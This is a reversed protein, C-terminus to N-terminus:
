HLTYIGDAILKLDIRYDSYLQFVQPFDPSNFKLRIAIRDVSLLRKKRDADVPIKLESRQSGNARFNADYPAALILDNVFLSDTISQSNDILFLQLNFNFPFGNDAILTLTTPGIPEFNTANSITFPLTDALILQNAAFRLPMRFHVHTQILKDRFVFDNGGSINGLPNLSLKIDYSYKDPINEILEKINSNSNDLHISYKTPVLSDPLQSNISARNINLYNQIFSPAILNSTNGSSTNFSNFYSIYIQEDTGVYNIIDLDLKASDLKLIGSKIIKDLGLINDSNDNTEAQGLYGRVFYPEIDVLTTKLNMITDSPGVMFAYGNPDSRAEVNYTISNFSNGSSGKLDLDYDSFDYENTFYKPNSNSASDVSATVTFPIGNKKAKPITYVFNIKSHLTNKIVLRIKGSSIIAQKLQANGVGLKINNNNSFFPQNPQITAPFPPFIVYTAITTDSVKYISDINFDSFTTDYNVIMAGDSLKEISTDAILEDISLTAHVLPGLVEIEWEPHPNEKKCTSLTILIVVAFILRLSM